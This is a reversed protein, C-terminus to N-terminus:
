AEIEGIEEEEMKVGRVLILGISFLVIVSLIAPRQSGFARSIEGFFIPGIIAASKGVLAYVGFYQNEEGEPIFRIFFARSAAQVSGLGLGAVVSIVWYQSQTQVFFAAIVVGCWLFLSLIIVFKPGRTDTPKAMAMAGFLASFQVVLILIILQSTDMGLTTAAFVGAFILVTQVGDQYFIYALLFRRANPRRWLRGLLTRTSEFGRRGAEVLGIPEGTHGPLSLFAPLSFIAFQAAVLLWIPNAHFPDAFPLAVMLAVISGVYGTAYGWGSVRGQMSTTTLQPLYANYFVMAGEMGINALTALVFGTLIMGPELITFGVVMLISLYTYTIWLRKRLGGADAIGGLFPSSLAVFLMSVSSVRGWWVDGLGADNGVILGTYYSAFLTTVIVASYASNAFDYLCWSITRRRQYPPSITTM